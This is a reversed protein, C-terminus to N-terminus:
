PRAELRDIAVDLDAILGSVDHRIETRLARQAAALADVAGDLDDAAAKSRAARVLDLAAAVSEPRPARLGYRYTEFTATELSAELRTFPDLTGLM